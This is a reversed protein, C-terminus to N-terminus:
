ELVNLAKTGCNLMPLLEWIFWQCNLQVTEFLVGDM